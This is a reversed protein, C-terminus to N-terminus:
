SRFQTIQVKSVKLSLRLMSLILSFGAAIKHQCFILHKVCTSLACHIHTYVVNWQVDSHASIVILKTHLYYIYSVTLCNASLSSFFSLCCLEGNQTHIEIGDWKARKTYSRHYYGHALAVLFFCCCCFDVWRLLILHFRFLFNIQQWFSFFPFIFDFLFSISISILSLFVPQKPTYGTRKTVRQRQIQNSKITARKWSRKNKNFNWECLAM